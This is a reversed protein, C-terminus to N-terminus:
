RQPLRKRNSIVAVRIKEAADAPDEHEWIRVVKWGTEELLKTTELDRRRNTEIKNRWFDANAKPWTGHIPCGHWFCGDVFVVVKSRQFVIDGRRRPKTLVLQDVRYRLGKAFLLRRIEIEPPTDRQGTAAM